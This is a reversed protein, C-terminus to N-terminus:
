PRGPWGDATSYPRVDSTVLDCPLSLSALPRLVGARTTSDPADFFVRNAGDDVGSSTYVGGFAKLPPTLASELYWLWDYLEALTWKVRIAPARAIDDDVSPLSKPQSRVVERLAARM